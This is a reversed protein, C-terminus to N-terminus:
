PQLANAAAACAEEYEERLAAYWITSVWEGRLFNDKVFEGERRLGVGDLLKIAASNRSDCAATVRHLRVDQFCFKLIAEMAELAFGKKQFKPNLFLTVNGQPPEQGTLRLGAYGILKEEDRLALGLYFMQEPTTLKVHADGELWRLIADEDLPHGQTFRFTEEEGLFEMLDSWDAPVLRRLTLRESSFPVPIRKGAQGPKEPVVLSQFCMPCEQLSDRHPMPFSVPDNCYPCTFDIFEDETIM